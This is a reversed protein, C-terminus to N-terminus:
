HKKLKNEETQREIAVRVVVAGERVLLLEPEAVLCLAGTLAVLFAPCTALGLVM